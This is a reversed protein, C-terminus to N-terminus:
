RRPQMAGYIGALTAGTGLATQLPTPNPQSTFQYQAPYGGMLGTVGSGQFGIREYPEYAALRNAERLADAQAQAQAQQNAGVQGLLSVDSQGLAQTTGGLGQQFQGLGLQAQGLGAQQQAFAARQGAFGAQQGAQGAQAQGLGLQAQGLGLQGQSLALQNQLDSQRAQSAQGFGQQLLNAEILARDRATQADFAGLQVGFRGSDLNGVTGLGAQQTVGSRQSAVRTDYDALTADIVQSQYPSMYSAISGTGTGTGTGTLGAATGLGTGAASIFPSVGGITTGATGLATGAGSLETGATGLIGQAGTLATGAATGATDAATLFPQYSGVGQGALSAAQTQLADQSAVTPAFKSTDIPTGTLNTLGAAYDKGLTEIFEAPLTRTETIAM